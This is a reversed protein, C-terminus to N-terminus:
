SWTWPPCVSSLVLGRAGVANEVAWMARGTRPDTDIDHCLVLYRAGLEIAHTQILGWLWEISVIVYGAGLASELLRRYAGLRSPMFFDAYVRHWISRSTM